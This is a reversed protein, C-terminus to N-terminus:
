SCESCFSLVIINAPNAALTATIYLRQFLPIHTTPDNAPYLVLSPAIPQEHLHGWDPDMHPAAARQALCHRHLREVRRHTAATSVGETRRWETQFM